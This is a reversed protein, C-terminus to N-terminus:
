RTSTSVCRPDGDIPSVGVLTRGKSDLCVNAILFDAGLAKGDAPAGKAVAFPMPGTLALVVTIM